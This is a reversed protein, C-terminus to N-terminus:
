NSFLIQISSYIALTDVSVNGIIEHKHVRDVHFCAVNSYHFAILYVWGQPDAAMLLTVTGNTM